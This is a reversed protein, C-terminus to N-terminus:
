AVTPILARTSVLLGTRRAVTNDSPGMPGTSASDSSANNKTLSWSSYARITGMTRSLRTGLIM